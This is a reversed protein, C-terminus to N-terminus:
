SRPARLMSIRLISIDLEPILGVLRYTAPNIELTDCSRNRGPQPWGRGAGVSENGTNLGRGIFVPPVVGAPVAGVM